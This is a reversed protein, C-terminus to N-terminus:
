CGCGGTPAPAKHATARRREWLWLLAAFVLGGIGIAWPNDLVGLSAALQAGAVTAIGIPMICFLFFSLAGGLGVSRLLRLWASRASMEREAVEGVATFVCANPDIADADIGRIELRLAGAADLVSFSLSPCCEREFTVLAELEERVEPSADFCLALGNSLEERGHAQAFLGGRLEKERAAFQEDSLNCIARMDTM